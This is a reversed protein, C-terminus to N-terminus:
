MPPAVGDRGVTINAASLTGDPQKAAIAFVKTGPKVDAMTAPAYTVIATDPPVIFTKEGDKYKLVLKQGDSVAVENDIAGNTMPSNPALDWPRHGDGTGRMAEPFIHIELAKQTGDPQPMGTVGVYGGAKVEALSAKVVARVPANDALKVQLTTGDRSKVDLVQGNVSEITGRVRVQPPTQAVAVSLLISTIFSLGLGSAAITGRITM